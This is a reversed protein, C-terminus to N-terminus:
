ANDIKVGKERVEVVPKKLTLAHRMEDRVWIHSGFDANNQGTRLTSFGILGDSLEIREEVTEHLVQGHIDKGSVIELNLAELIPFVDREIWDDRDNYGYGVFVRMLEITIRM